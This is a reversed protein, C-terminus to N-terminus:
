LRHMKVWKITNIMRLWSTRCKQVVEKLKKSMSRDRLGVERMKFEKKKFGKLKPSKLLGLSIWLPLKILTLFLCKRLHGSSITMRRYNPIKLKSLWPNSFLHSTITITLLFQSNFLSLFGLSSEIEM